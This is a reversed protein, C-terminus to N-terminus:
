AGLREMPGAVDHPRGVRGLQALPGGRAREGVSSPMPSELALTM